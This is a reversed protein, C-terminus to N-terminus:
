RLKSGDRKSGSADSFAFSGTNGFAKSNATIFHTLVIINIIYLIIFLLKDSKNIKIHILTPFNRYKKSKSHSLQNYFCTSEYVQCHQREHNEIEPSGM